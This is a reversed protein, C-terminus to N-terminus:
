PVTVGCLYVAHLRSRQHALSIAHQLMCFGQVQCQCQMVTFHLGGLFYRRDSTLPVGSQMTCPLNNTRCLVGCRGAIHSSRIISDPYRIGFGDLGQSAKSRACEDTGKCRWYAIRGLAVGVKPLEFQGQSRWGFGGRQLFFSFFFFGRGPWRRTNSRGFGLGHITCIHM